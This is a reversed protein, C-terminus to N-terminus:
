NLWLIEAMRGDKGVWESVDYRELVAAPTAPQTRGPLIRLPLTVTGDETYAELRAGGDILYVQTENALLAELDGEPVAIEGQENLPYRQFPYPLELWKHHAASCYETPETGTIFVESVVPGCGASLNAKLGTSRDISVISIGPPRDFDSPEVDALAREMFARWIPLAAQAGTERSGLSRPEDFGVWVGVALRPSYGIFWADTNDDTTGTKGALPHGLAAAARGTGDTIVGGLVRNM